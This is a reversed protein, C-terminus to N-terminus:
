GIWTTAIYKKGYELTEAQHVHTWLAPFLLLSGTEPTIKMGNHFITRGGQGEKMSNLYWLATTHRMESPSGDHHIGYYDGAEYSQLLYGYDKDAQYKPTVGSLMQLAQSLSEYLLKDIAMFEEKDKGELSRLSIDKTKKIEPRYGNGTVGAEHIDSRDEFKKIIEYCERRTLANRIIYIHDGLNEIELEKM